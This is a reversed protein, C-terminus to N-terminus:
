GPHRLLANLKDIVGPEVYVFPLDPSIPLNFLRACAERAVHLISGTRFADSLKLQIDSPALGSKTPDCEVLAVYGDDFLKQDEPCLGYATVTHHDLVQALRRHILVTGTEYLSGCVTCVHQELSVHSKENM